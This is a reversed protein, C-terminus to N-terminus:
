HLSFIPTTGLNSGQPVGCSLPAVGSLHGNISCKQSRDCLYSEFWKLSSTDVGYKHLKRILLSHDITDFAKKLDIFIVGNVLGNDINVSWSNTAEILATLTSHLSRFGSQCHALLNNDTFYEYLQDYIIKEFIKAVTAIISIPRYNNPDDRKGKKFIPTVRALKWETPFIGTSISKTFIQTLSPAVINGAMKLLKSPINDLGAAKRENLKLLLKRAVNVTPAKLSLTTETPELYSEPEVNSSPIESALRGGISSSHLNLEEAIASPKTITQERVKIESINKVKNPHRSSM